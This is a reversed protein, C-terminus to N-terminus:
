GGGGKGSLSVKKSARTGSLRHAKPQANKGSDFTVGDALLIPREGIIIREECFMLIM